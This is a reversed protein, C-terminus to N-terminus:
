PRSKNRGDLDKPAPALVSMGPVLGPMVNLTLQQLILASRGLAGGRRARSPRPQRPGGRPVTEGGGEGDLSNVIHSWYGSAYLVKMEPRRAQAQRALDIGNLGPMVIDTLILHIVPEKDIM